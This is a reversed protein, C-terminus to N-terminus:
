EDALWMKVLQAADEPRAKALKEITERQAEREKEQQTLEKQTKQDVEDVANFSALEIAEEEAARSRAAFLRVLYLVVLIGLVVAGIKLYLEQKQQQEYAQEERKQKDVAETNFPISEVSIVDGRVPNLGVASSVVKSISDQQAKTVNTDVLVAVTVRRISGPASVVKEKTENIEYNRTIEKKEYNSQGTNAAVYGPINTTTGPIGGPAPSTGKFAERIM